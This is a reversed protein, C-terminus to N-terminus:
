TCGLLSCVFIMGCVETKCYTINQVPPWSAGREPVVEGTMFLRFKILDKRLRRPLHQPNIAYGRRRGTRLPPRGSSGSEADLKFRAFTDDNNKCKSLPVDDGDDESTELDSDMDSVDSNEYSEDFEADSFDVDTDPEDDASSAGAKIPPCVAASDDMFKRGPSSVAYEDCSTDDGSTAVKAVADSSVDEESSSGSHAGSVLSMFQSTTSDM